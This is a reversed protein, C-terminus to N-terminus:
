IKAKIDEITNESEVDLMIKKGTLTSVYIIMYSDPNSTPLPIKVLQLEKTVSDMIRTHAILSTLPCLIGYKVSMEKALTLNGNTKYQLNMNWFEAIKLM